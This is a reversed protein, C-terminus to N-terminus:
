SLVFRTNGPLTRWSTALGPSLTGNPGDHILAEYPIATVDKFLGTGYSPDISSPAFGIGVALTPKAASSADAAVTSCLVALGAVTALFGAMSLSRHRRM